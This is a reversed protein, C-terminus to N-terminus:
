LASLSLINDNNSLKVSSLAFSTILCTASFKRLRRTSFFIERCRMESNDPTGSDVTARKSCFPSIAKSDSTLNAIAKPYARIYPFQEVRGSKLCHFFEIQNATFAAVFPCVCFLLILICFSLFSSDLRDLHLIGIVANAIVCSEQRPTKLLGYM